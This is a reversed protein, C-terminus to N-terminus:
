EEQKHHADQGKPQGRRKRFLREIDSDTIWGRRRALPLVLMSIVVVFAIPITNYFLEELLPGPDPELVRDILTGLLIAPVASALALVRRETLWLWGFFMPFFAIVSYM